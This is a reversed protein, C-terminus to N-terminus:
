ENDGSAVIRSLAEWEAVSLTEPRRGTDLDTVQHIRALAEGGFAAELNYRLTKRRHLFCEHVVRALAPLHTREPRPTVRLMVSEVRPQPWFAQPTVRAIREIEAGSQMIISLPGILKGGPGATIRDAVEKQVTFCELEPPREVLLLDILLPSAVNYPLNAVLCVRGGLSRAAAGMAELVQPAIKSKGALVDSHLLTLRDRGALREALLAHLGHDYEVAVVRGARELLMETLSGTGAGVELVTDTSTLGAADVLKRMLNGDILFNQGLARSPRLGRSALITRIESLSQAM